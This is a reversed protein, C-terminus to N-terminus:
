LVLEAFGLGTILEPMPEYGIIRGRAKPVMGMACIFTKIELAGNGAKEEVEADSLAILADVDGTEILTMLHADFDANVRGMEENGVWHSMGGTGLVVVREEGPWAEIARRISDGIRRARESSLLPAIGANVYIPIVRLDPIDSLSLKYPIAIAHDANIAKAFAWDVGDALGFRLIHSALAENNAVSACGFGLWDECPMEVDGVAILCSPICHPGFCTYHDSGIVIATDAGLERVREGIEAFHSLIVEPKGPRWRDKPVGTIGPNHPLLFGGVISAM